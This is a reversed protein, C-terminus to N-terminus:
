PELSGYRNVFSQKLLITKPSLSKPVLGFEHGGKKERAPYYLMRRVVHDIWYVTIAARCM